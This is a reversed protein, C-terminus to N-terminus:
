IRKDENAYLNWRKIEEGKFVEYTKAIGRDQIVGKTEFEPSSHEQMKEKSTLYEALPPIRFSKLKKYEFTMEKFLNTLLCHYIMQLQILYKAFTQM